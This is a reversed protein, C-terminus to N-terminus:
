FARLAVLIVLVLLLGVSIMWIGRKPALLSSPNRDKRGTSEDNVQRAVEAKRAMQLQEATPPFGAAEDDTGLPAAAPDSWDTKDGARGHDIDDRLRDSTYSPKEM